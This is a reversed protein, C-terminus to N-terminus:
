RRSPLLSRLQRAGREARRGADIQQAVLAAKQRQKTRLYFRHLQILHRERDPFQVAVRKFVYEAEVLEGNTELARGLQLLLSPRQGHRHLASYLASVAETHRGLAQLVRIHGQRAEYRMPFVKVVDRYIAEAEELQGRDELLRAEMTRAGPHKPDITLAKRLAQIVEDTFGAQMYLSRAYGFQVSSWTPRSFLLKSWHDLAARWQAAQMLASALEHRMHAEDSDMPYAMSARKTRSAEVLWELPTQKGLTSTPTDAFAHSGCSVSGLLVCVIM